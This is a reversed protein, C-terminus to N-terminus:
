KHGKAKEGNLDKAQNGVVYGAKEIINIAETGSLFELFQQASKKNKSKHEHQELLVVQQELPTYTSVPIVWISKSAADHNKSLVQSLAVFGATVGGTDIFQYTQSINNGVLLKSQYQKWRGQSKLFQKAAMGYPALKPNTIAIRDINGANFVAKADSEPVWLVLRGNAYTFRSESVALGKEVLLKPRKVDAAMFIDYPAGNTIQAYLKGTSGFHLILNHGTQKEFIPKLQKITTTFNSAVAVKIDAAKATTPFTLIFCILGLIFVLYSILPTLTKSEGESLSQFILRSGVGTSKICEWASGPFSSCNHPIQHNATNRMM